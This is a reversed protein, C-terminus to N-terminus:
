CRTSCRSRTAGGGDAYRAILALADEASLEEAALVEALRGRIAPAGIRKFDFARQPWSLVRAATNAIKQPETTAFVFVM